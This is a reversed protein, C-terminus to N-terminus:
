SEGGMLTAMEADWDVSGTGDIENRLLDLMKVLEASRERLLDRSEDSVDAEHIENVAERIKRKATVLLGDAVIARVDGRTKRDADARDDARANKAAFDSRESAREVKAAVVHRTAADSVVDPDSALARFQERKAEPTEQAEAAAAGASAAETFKRSPNPLRDLRASLSNYTWTQEAIVEHRDDREALMRHTTWTQAAARAAAPWAGAVRRYDRLTNATTGIEAAFRGLLDDNHVGNAGAPCVENALDGLEWKRDNIETVLARGRAVRDDWQNDHSM